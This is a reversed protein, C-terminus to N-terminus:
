MLKELRSLLHQLNEEDLILVIYGHVVEASITLSARMFVVRGSRSPLLDVLLDGFDSIGKLDLFPVEYSLVIGLQNAISGMVGNIMINCLELLASQEM